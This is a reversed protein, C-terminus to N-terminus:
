LGLHNKVKPWHQRSYSHISEKPLPRVKKSDLYNNLSHREIRYHGKKAIKGNNEVVNIADLEGNRILQYVVSKSIKLETAIDDVTLWESQIAKHASQLINFFQELQRLLDKCVGCSNNDPKKMSGLNHSEKHIM